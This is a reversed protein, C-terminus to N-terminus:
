TNAKKCILQYHHAWTVVLYVYFPQPFDNYIQGEHYMNILDIMSLHTWILM